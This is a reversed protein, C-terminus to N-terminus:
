LLLVSNYRVSFLNSLFLGLKNYKQLKIKGFHSKSDSRPLKDDLYRIAQFHRGEETLHKIRTRENILTNTGCGFTADQEGLKEYAEFAIQQAQNGSEPNIKHILNFLSDSSNESSAEM